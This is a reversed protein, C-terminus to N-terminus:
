PKTAPTRARALEADYVARAPATLRYYDDWSLADALFAALYFQTAVFYEDRARVTVEIFNDEAQVANAIGALLMAELALLTKM